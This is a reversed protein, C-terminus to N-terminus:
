DNDVSDIQQSLQPPFKDFIRAGVPTRDTIMPWISHVPCIARARNDQESWLCPRFLVCGGRINERFAFKLVMMQQGKYQRLGLLAKDAQPVFETLPDDAYARRIQLAESPVRLSFLYSIFALPSFPSGAGEHDRIYLIDKPLLYNPFAFSRGQSNELGQAITRIAPIDRAIDMELLLFAKKLHAMYNKYTRGPKFLNIRSRVTSEAPPFPARGLVDCFRGYSRIGSAVSRLSGKTSRTINHKEAAKLFARCDRDGATARSLGQARLMPALTDYNAPLEVSGRLQRYEKYIETDTIKRQQSKKLLKDIAKNILDVRLPLRGPQM